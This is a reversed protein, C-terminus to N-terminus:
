KMLKAIKEYNPVGISEGNIIMAPSYSLNLTKMAIFADSVIKDSIEANKLCATIKDVPMGAIGAIRSIDNEYNSTFAWSSQTSFFTQLLTFYKQSDIEKTVLDIAGCRALVAGILAPKTTPFDRYVYKAKCTDILKAKIIPFVNKYYEACHPCGLSSYEIIINRANACGLVTDKDSIKLIDEKAPTATSVDTNAKENVNDDSAFVYQCCFLLNILVIIHISKVASLSNKIKM